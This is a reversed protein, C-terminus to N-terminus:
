STTKNALYGQFRRGNCTINGNWLFLQVTALADTVDHPKKIYFSDACFQSPRLFLHKLNLFFVTGSPCTVDWVVPIGMFLINQFGAKLLEEDARIAYKGEILSGLRVFMDPDCVIMDITEAQIGQQCSMMMRQMNGAGTSLSIPEVTGEYQSVWWPYSAVTMSTPNGDNKDLIYGYAGSASIITPISTPADDLQTSALVSEGLKKKMTNVTMDLMDNAFDAVKEKGSNQLIDIDFLPMSGTLSVKTFLIKRLPDSQVVPITARADRFDVNPNGEILVRETLQENDPFPKRKQNLKFYVPNSNFYEDTLEPGSARATEALISYLDPTVNVAM